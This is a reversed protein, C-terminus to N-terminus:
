SPWYFRIALGLTVNRARDIIMFQIWNCETVNKALRATGYYVASIPRDTQQWGAVRLAVRCRSM